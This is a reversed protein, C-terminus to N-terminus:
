DSVFEPLKEGSIQQRVSDIDGLVWIDTIQHGDSKFFAAGNWEIELGSANMGFLSAQHRGNFKMQAAARNHSIVLDEITCTFEGLAQHVSQWYALFGDPGIQESGLSGRFSLNKHLIQWAVQKDAKNWLEHYFREVLEKIPKEM